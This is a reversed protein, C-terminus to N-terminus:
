SLVQERKQWQTVGKETRLQIIYLSSIDWPNRNNKTSRSGRPISGWVRCATAQGCVSDFQGNYDTVRPQYLTYQM